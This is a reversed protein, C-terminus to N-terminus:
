QDEQGCWTQVILEQELYPVDTCVAALGERHLLERLM